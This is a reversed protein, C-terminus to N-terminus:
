IRRYFNKKLNFTGEYKAEAWHGYWAFITFTNILFMFVLYLVYRIMKLAPM